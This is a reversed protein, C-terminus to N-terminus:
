ALTRPVTPVKSGHQFPGCDRIRFDHTHGPRRAIDLAGRHQHDFIVVGDTDWQDLAEIPLAELRGVQRGARLREARDLGGIEDQEIQLKDSGVGGFGIECRMTPKTLVSIVKSVKTRSEVAAICPVWAASRRGM